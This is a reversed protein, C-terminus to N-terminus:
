EEQVSPLSDVPSLRDALSKIASEISQLPNMLEGIPNPVLRPMQQANERVPPACAHGVACLPRFSTDNENCSFAWSNECPPWIDTSVGLAPVVVLPLPAPGIRWKSVRTTPAPKAPIPAAM